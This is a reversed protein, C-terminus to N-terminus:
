RSRRSAASSFVAGIGGQSCPLARGVCGAGATGTIEWFVARADVAANRLRVGQAEGTARTQSTFDWSLLAPILSAAGM